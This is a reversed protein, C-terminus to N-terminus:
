VNCFGLYCLMLFCYQNDDAGHSLNVFTTRLLVENM